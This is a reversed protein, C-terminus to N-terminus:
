KKAEKESNDKGWPTAFNFFYDFFFTVFIALIGMTSFTEPNVKGPIFFDSVIIVLFIIGAFYLARTFSRFFGMAIVEFFIHFRFAAAPFAIREGM